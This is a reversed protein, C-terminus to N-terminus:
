LNTLFQKFIQSFKSHVLRYFCDVLNRRPSYSVYVYYDVARYIFVFKITQNHEYLAILWM